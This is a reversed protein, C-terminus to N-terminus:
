KQRRRDPKRHRQAPRRRHPAAAGPRPPCPPRPASSSAPADTSRGAPLRGLVPLLEYITTYGDLYIARDDAIVPNFAGDPFSFVTQGSVANWGQRPRPAWTPTTSSMASWRRRAPSRAARPTAGVPDRGVPRQLCVPRGDYSGVYVTPGLGPPDAVAPYAYVYAGTGTAWALAGTQAGFSYVRGDTNGMYVRGYAVAPTSYFNGSGFGLQAGNTGVAWLQHGDRPESRTPAGPM